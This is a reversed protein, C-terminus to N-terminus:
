QVILEAHLAGARKVTQLITIIDRSTAKVKNLASVLDSVTSNGPLTVSMPADETVDITTQPVVVTRANSNSETNYNFFGMNGYPQSVQYETDIVIKLDGHTISVSSIRVNGGAVVTGTRENVVVKAHRDPQIMLAEIQAIFSVVNNQSSDPVKISVRSADTARALGAGFKINISNAVRNATTFDPDHLVYSMEGRGNILETNVTREVVAGGTIHAATPHNKQILNGFLDYSFGGVLLPGQALAYLNGDPGLLHSRILTGGVLSRADGMSTINVDLKDGSRAFPPLSATIMVAAANRGRLNKPDIDVGFSDLTNSISQFTAAFRITDGSGALGTVIGYGVLQNDRVTAIRGLEKIRVETTDINANALPVVAIFLTCIILNRLKPKM